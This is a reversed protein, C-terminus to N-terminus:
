RASRLLWKPLHHALVAHPGSKLLKIVGDANVTKAGVSLVGIANGDDALIPSGSMGPEINPTADVYLGKDYNITVTCPVWHGDLSLLWARGSRPIMDVRFAPVKETLADYAEAQQGLEQRDPSSLVAIDGIPDAFLCEAWVEPRCANLPGLLSKYTREFLLCGSHCPPFYPLCHAATIVSRETAFCRKGQFPPYEVRYQIIFGRGYGVGVVARAATSDFRKKKRVLM